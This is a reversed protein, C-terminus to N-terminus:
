TRRVLVDDRADNLTVLWFQRFRFRRKPSAVGVSCVTVRQDFAIVPVTRRCENGDGRAIGEATQVIRAQLTDRRSLIEEREATLRERELRAATRQRELEELAERITARLTEADTRLTKAFCLLTALEARLERPDRIQSEAQAVRDRLAAQQRVHKGHEALQTASDDGGRASAA